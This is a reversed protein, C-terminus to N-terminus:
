PHQDQAVHHLFRVPQVARALGLVVQHAVVGVRDRVEQGVRSSARSSAFSKSRSSMAVVIRSPWARGSGDHALLRRGSTTGGSCIARFAAKDSAQRWVLRECRRRARSKATASLATRRINFGSWAVLALVIPTTKRRSPM